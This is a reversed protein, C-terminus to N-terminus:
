DEDDDCDDEDNCRDCLCPDSLWGEEELAKDETYYFSGYSHDDGVLLGFTKSYGCLNCTATFDTSTTVGWSKMTEHERLIEQVEERLHKLNVGLDKPCAALVTAAEEDMSEVDIRLSSSNFNVIAKALEPTVEGLKLSLSKFQGSLLTSLVDISEVSYWGNLVITTKDYCCLNSAEESTLEGIVPDCSTEGRCRFVDDKLYKAGTEYEICFHQALLFSEATEPITKPCDTDRGFDGELYDFSRILTIIVRDSLGTVTGLLLESFKGKALCAAGAESLSTLGYLSLEGGKYSSLSEAAEDEIATFESLDVSDEDELFQEAIEKTLVKEDSM